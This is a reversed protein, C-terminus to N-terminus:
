TLSTERSPCVRRTLRSWLHGDTGFFDRTSVEVLKSQRATSRGLTEVRNTDWMTQILYSGGGLMFHKPRVESKRFLRAELALDPKTPAVAVAAELM